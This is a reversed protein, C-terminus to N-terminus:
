YLTVMVSCAWGKQDDGMCKCEGQQSHRGEQNLKPQIHNLWRIAQNQAGLCAQAQTQATATFQRTDAGAGMLFLSGVLVGVWKLKM